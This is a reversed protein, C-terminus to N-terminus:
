QRFPQCWWGAACVGSGRFVLWSPQGRNVPEVRSSDDATDAARRRGTLDRCVPPSQSPLTQRPTDTLGAQGSRPTRGEPPHAASSATSGCRLDPYWTACWPTGPRAVSTSRACRNRLGAHKDASTTAVVSGRMLRPVGNEGSTAPDASPCAARPPYLDIPLAIGDREPLSEGLV